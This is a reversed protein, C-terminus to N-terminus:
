PFPNCIVGILHRYDNQLRGGIRRLWAMHMASTPVGLHRLDTEQLVLALNSAVAPMTRFDSAHANELQLAWRRLGCLFEDAGV